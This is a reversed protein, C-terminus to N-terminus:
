RATGTNATPKPAPASQTTPCPPDFSVFKSLYQQVYSRDINAILGGRKQCIVHFKVTKQAGDVSPYAVFDFKLRSHEYGVGDSTDVEPASIISGRAGDVLKLDGTDGSPRDIECFDGTITHADATNILENDEIAKSSAKGFSINKQFTFGAKGSMELGTHCAPKTPVADAHINSTAPAAAKFFSMLLNCDHIDSQNGNAKSKKCVDQLNANMKDLDVPPKLHSLLKQRNDASIKGSTLADDIDSQPIHANSLVRKACAYTWRYGDTPKTISVGDGFLDKNCVIKGNSFLVSHDYTCSGNVM